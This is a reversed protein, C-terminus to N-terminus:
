ARVPTAESGQASTKKLLRAFIMGHTVLLVPVWFTPIYWAAGLHPVAQEHSLAYLLDLTGIINFLWVLAM